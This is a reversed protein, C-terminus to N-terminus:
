LKAALEHASVFEVGYDSQLWTRNTANLISTGAGVGIDRTCFFSNQYGIHAAVSDGDAWEGVADAVEKIETPTQAYGLGEFWTEQTGKTVVFSNGITEVVAKGVGRAEIKRLASFFLDQRDKTSTEDAEVVFWQDQLIQPRPLGIRPCRMFKFGLVIAESFRDILIQHVGPHANPDPSLSFSLKISGDPLVDESAKSQASSSSFYSARDDRKIAELDAMTEAVFGQIDGKQIADHIAQIAALEPDNPFKDPRLVHQFINSDFTVKLTM